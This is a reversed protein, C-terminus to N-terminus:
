LQGTERVAGVAARQLTESLLEAVARDVAEADTADPRARQRLWLVSFSGAQEIPGVADDPAAAELMAAYATPVEDRRARRSALETGARRAIDDAPLRDSRACSLAERAAAVSALRLEDYHFLTWELKRDELRAPVTPSRRVEHELDDLARARRRWVGLHERCWGPDFPGFLELMKELAADEEGLAADEPPPRLEPDNPAPAPAAADGSLREAAFLRVAADAFARWAGSCALETFLLKPTLASWEPAAPTSTAGARAVVRTLYQDFDDLTLARAALWARLDEGSELHRARRFRSAEAHVAGRPLGEPASRALQEGCAADVILRSLLGTAAGALLLDRYTM